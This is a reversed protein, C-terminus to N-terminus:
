RGAQLQKLLELGQKHTPNRQLLRELVQMAQQQRGTAVFLRCLTVYAPEFKPEEKMFRELLAIAAATDGRAGLVLALNNVADGYGPRQEVAKRFYSEARELERQQGFFIGVNNLAEPFDPRLNLARQYLEYAEQRRGTQFLAYGLNNLADAYDPKTELAKRFQAIASDVDGNQGLLAGLTNSAEAYEPSLSLAQELAAKAASPQGLKMYLTGLNYFTIASPDFKAVREFVALAPKDFGQESLELGYQFYSREGPPSYFTGRFPVARALREDPSIVRPIDEVIRAADIPGSYVKVVEARANLLFTTPLFLDGRRDFLYRHLVNYTGAVEEGAIMANLKLGEASSRVKAGDESSDVALALISAGAKALAESHQSLADLAARSPPAWTAWFCMVVPKGAM